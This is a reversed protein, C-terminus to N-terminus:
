VTALVIYEVVHPGQLVDTPSFPVTFDFPPPINVNEGLNSVPKVTILADEPLLLPRGYIKASCSEACYVSWWVRRCIERDLETSEPDQPEMHLKLAVSMQVASGIYHGSKEPLGQKQAFESLLVLTQILTLNGEGGTFGKEFHQEARSFYVKDLKQNAGTSLWAGLALVMNALVPWHPPAPQGEQVSRFTEEHLMPYLTHYYAFYKDVFKSEEDPTATHTCVQTLSQSENDMDMPASDELEPTIFLNTNLCGGPTLFNSPMNGEASVWGYDKNTPAPNGPSDEMLLERTIDQMEGSPFLRQLVSELLHLRSEVATLHRCAM